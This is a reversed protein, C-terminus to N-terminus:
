VAPQTYSNEYQIFRKTKNTTVSPYKQSVQDLIVLALAHFVINHHCHITEGFLGTSLILYLEWVGIYYYDKPVKKRYMAIFLSLFVILFPIGVEWSLGLLGWDAVYWHYNQALSSRLRSYESPAKSLPTEDDLIKTRGSGLFYEVGNIFHNNMHYNFNLVRVYDSNNLSQTQSRTQIEEVKNQFISQTSLVFLLAFAAIAAGIMKWSFGVIRIYMVISVLAIGIINSRTGQLFIIICMWVFFLYYVRKGRLAKNLSYIGGLSLISSSWIRVRSEIQLFDIGTDLYFFEVTLFINQLTYGILLIFFLIFLVSEWGKISINLYKFFPYYFILLFPFWATFSVYLGQKRFFLCTVMNLIMLLVYWKLLRPFLLHNYVKTTGLLFLQIAVFPLQARWGICWLGGPYLAFRFFSVVYLIFFVAFLIKISEYRIGTM